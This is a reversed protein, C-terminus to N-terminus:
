VVHFRFQDALLGYYFSTTDPKLRVLRRNAGPQLDAQLRVGRVEMGGAEFDYVLASGRASRRRARSALPENQATRFETSKFFIRDGAAQRMEFVAIFRPQGAPKM